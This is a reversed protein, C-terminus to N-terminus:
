PGTPLPVRTIFSVLRVQNGPDSGKAGQRFGTKRDKKLLLSLKRNGKVADM